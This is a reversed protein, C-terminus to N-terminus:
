RGRASVRQAAIGRLEGDDDRWSETVGFGHHVLDRAVDEDQAGGVEILLWGDWRLLRAADAIVRRLVALGDDGGDLARRPEYRQVDSPLLTVDATPVYPAVATVLDFAADGHVPAGLDGVVCPLGNRSACRTARLDVDVGFV